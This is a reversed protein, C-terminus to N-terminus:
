SNASMNEGTTSECDIFSVLQQVIETGKVYRIVISLQEWNSVDTVEDAQVGFLGSACVDKVIKDTLYEGICMLLENQSTKSMYNARKSCSALYSELASDGAHIRLQVLAKFNGQNSDGSTSDDRHGRFKTTEWLFRFVLYSVSKLFQHNRQVQQTCETIM